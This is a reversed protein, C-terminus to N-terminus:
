NGECIWRWTGPSSASSGTTAQKVWNAQFTPEVDAFHNEWRLTLHRIPKTNRSIGPLFRVRVLLQQVPRCFDILNALTTRAFEVFRISLSQPSSTKIEVWGPRINGPSRDCESRSAGTQWCFCYSCSITVDDNCSSHPM